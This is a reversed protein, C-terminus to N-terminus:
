RLQMSDPGSVEIWDTVCMTESLIRQVTTKSLIESKPFRVVIGSVGNEWQTPIIVAHDLPNCSFIFVQWDGGALRFTGEVFAMNDDMRLDYSIEGTM